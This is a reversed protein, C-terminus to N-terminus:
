KKKTLKGTKKVYPSSVSEPEDHLKDPQEEMRRVHEDESVIEPEVELIRSFSLELQKM